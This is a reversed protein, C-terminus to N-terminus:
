SVRLGLHSQNARARSEVPKCTNDSPIAPLYLQGTGHDARPETVTKARARKVEM